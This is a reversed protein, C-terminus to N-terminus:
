DELLGPDLIDVERELMDVIRIEIGKGWSM